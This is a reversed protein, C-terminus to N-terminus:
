GKMRPDVYYNYIQSESGFGQAVFTFRVVQWGSRSDPRVNVPDSPAWASGGRVSGSDRALSLPIGLLAIGEYTASVHVSGAGKVSRAMMRATQFGEDVCIPPSVARAGSPLDLVSGARGSELTAAKVKAGGSLSWGSGSFSDVVQGPALMYLSSDGSSIFPQTLSPYSCSKTNPRLQLLAASAPSAGFGVASVIIGLVGCLVVARARISFLFRTM